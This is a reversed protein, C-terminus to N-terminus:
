SEILAATLIESNARQLILQEPTLLVELRRRDLLGAEALCGDLLLPLLLGLSAAIVRGYHATLDGKGRRDIVPAPLRGRFAERSVVRDRGGRTLAPTTLGRCLEVVPQSLLPHLM